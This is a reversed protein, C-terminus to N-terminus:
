PGGDARGRQLGAKREALNHRSCEQLRQTIEKVAVEAGGIFPHYAISFILIRKKM